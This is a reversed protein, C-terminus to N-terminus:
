STLHQNSMLIPVKANCRVVINTIHLNRHPNFHAVGAPDLNDQRRAELPALHVVAPAVVLSFDLALQAVPLIGRHVRGVLHCAVVKDGLLLWSPLM